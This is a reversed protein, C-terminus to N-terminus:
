FDDVMEIIIVKVRIKDYRTVEVINIDMAKMLKKNM